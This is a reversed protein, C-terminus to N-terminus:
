SVSYVSNGDYRFLIYATFTSTITVAAFNHLQVAVRNPSALYCTYLNMRNSGCNYGVVGVPTYREPPTFQLTLSAATDKNATYGISFARVIVPAYGAAIENGYTAQDDDAVAISARGDECLQFLGYDLSNAEGVQIGGWKRPDPVIAIRSGDTNTYAPTLNGTKANLM